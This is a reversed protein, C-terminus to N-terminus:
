LLAKSRVDQHVWPKRRGSCSGLRQHILNRILTKHSGNREQKRKTGQWLFKALLSAKAGSREIQLQGTVLKLAQAIWIAIIRVARSACKQVDMLETDLSDAIAANVSSPLQNLCTPARQLWPHGAFSQVAQGEKKQPARLAQAKPINVM